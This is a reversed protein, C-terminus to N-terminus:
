TFAPRTLFDEESYLRYCDGPMIRGSRGKRQEASAQSVAEVPLRQVKAHVSYRSIRATGADIVYRIGPVTLSTEAVNTSLVVRRGRHGSFVRQQEQQTLRAYLPLFETDRFQCKKLHRHADRIDREGSLYVLVECASPRGHEREHAEIERLTDELQRTIDQENDAPRYHVTVPYTRRSVEIVPVAGGNTPAAKRGRNAESGVSRSTPAATRGRIRAPIPAGVVASFHEAFRRHDITASTIILKLDPRRPLLRRLYCLLFDINLSREHAEDIILTDYQNLYPDQQIEALLMGDTLV